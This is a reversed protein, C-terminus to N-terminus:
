HRRFYRNYHKLVNWVTEVSCGAEDAVTMVVDTKKCELCNIEEYLKLVIYRNIIPNTFFKHELLYKIINRINPEIEERKCYQCFDHLVNEIFVDLPKKGSRIPQLVSNKQM